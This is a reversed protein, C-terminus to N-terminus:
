MERDTVGHCISLELAHRVSYTAERVSTNSTGLTGAPFNIWWEGMEIFSADGIPLQAWGGLRGLVM